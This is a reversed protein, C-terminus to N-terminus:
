NSSANWIRGCGSGGGERPRAPEKWCAVSGAKRLACDYAGGVAIQTADDIDSVTVAGHNDGGDNKGWCHVKGDKTLACSHGDIRAIASM